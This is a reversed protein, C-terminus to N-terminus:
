MGLEARIRLYHLVQGRSLMGLLKDGLLVPVQNVGADDMTRLATFLDTSPEVRVIRDWPVMVQAATTETWKARPVQAVDTLTLLGLLRGGEAVFFCRRGGTLVHEEILQQLSIQAPVLPCDPTMAQAATVDRLSQQLSVQAYSTAAANQLFWGIFVLWLGNFLNGRLMTFVGIGVFGFAVVQGSNAAVQTARYFSGSHKWILSRLVRGGDLPFGPILNFVALILNIRMLWISPAALYPIMRDLWWLAGFVAALGLSTLPGAIAIRFEEGPTHPEREIQAVGGFVFLTISRVPIQHRLAVVSHGLEHALVSGFFLLSTVVGLVWYAAASLNRYEAPFYGMALSWTMLAFILFWSGHLGIPIGFIRGLRVKAEM